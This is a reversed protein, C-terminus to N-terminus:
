LPLFPGALILACACGLVCAMRVGDHLSHPLYRAFAHTM